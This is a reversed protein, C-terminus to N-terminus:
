DDMQYGVGVQLVVASLDDGTGPVIAGMYGATSFDMIKNGNGWTRYALRGDTGYYVWTSPATEAHSTLILCGLTVALRAYTRPM